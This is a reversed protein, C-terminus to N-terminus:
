YKSPEQLLLSLVENLRCKALVNDSDQAGYSFVLNDDQLVAGTLFQVKTPLVSFKFPKSLKEIDFPPTKNLLAAVHYYDRGVHYHYFSLFKDGLDVACNGRLDAPNYFHQEYIQEVETHNYKLIRRPGLPNMEFYLHDLPLPVWNKQRLPYNHNLPLFILIDGLVKALFVDINKDKKEGQSGCAYIQNKWYFLRCDELNKPESLAATKVSQLNFNDDFRIFVPCFKDKNEAKRGYYRTNKNSIFNRAALLWGNDYILGSNFVGYGNPLYDLYDSLRLIEEVKLVGSMKKMTM